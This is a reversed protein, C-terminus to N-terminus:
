LGLLRPSPTWRILLKVCWVDWNGNSILSDTMLRGKEGALFFFMRGCTLSRRADLLRSIKGGGDDFLGFGDLWQATWVVVGVGVGGCVM